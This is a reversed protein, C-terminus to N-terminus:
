GVSAALRISVCRNLWKPLIMSEVPMIANSMKLPFASVNALTEFDFLCKQFYFYVSKFIFDFM